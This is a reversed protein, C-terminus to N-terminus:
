ELANDVPMLGLALWFERAPEGANEGEVDRPRRDGKRVSLEAGRARRAEQQRQTEAEDRRSARRSGLGSREGERVAEGEV